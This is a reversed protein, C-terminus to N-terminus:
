NAALQDAAAFSVWHEGPPLMVAVSGDRRPLVTPESLVGDIWIAAPRKELVAIARSRNNYSISLGRIPDKTEEGRLEKVDALKGNFDILRLAPASERKSVRHKGATLWVSRSDQYPWPQGDVLAPGTWAVGAGYPSDVTFSGDPEIRLSGAASAGAMLPRDLRNISFESYYMTQPFSASTVRALQLVESGSQRETPYSVFQRRAVNVDIALLDGFPTLGRYLESIRPYREPGLSWLTAPDQIIFDFPIRNLLKLLLKNDYGLFDRIKPEYQDDVNTMALTYPTGDARRLGNLFVLWQEHMAHNLQVRYEYLQRLAPENVKWHYASGPQFIQVPDYGHRDTFSKRFDPNMPTFQAPDDPGLLSEFYLEALNVGDWDFRRLLSVTAAQVARVCDPNQFNMLKRWFVAADSLQATKDRWQPNDAWFRDSVHPYELWAHVQIGNRHCADILQRLFTDRQEDPEMHYWAGAHIASIGARRWQSAMYEPDTRSRYAYDFFAWIRKSSLPSRFGMEDIAQPLFPFRGYGNGPLPAALWLVRGSGMRWSAMLPVDTWRDRSHIKANPPLEAAILQAEAEWVIATQPSRPDLERRTAGARRSNVGLASLAQPNAELIVALGARVKDALAEPVAEGARVVLLDPSAADQAFGLTNLVQSWGSAPGAISYRPIQAAATLSAAAALAIMRVPTSFTM